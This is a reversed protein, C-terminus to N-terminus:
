CIKIIHSQYQINKYLEYYTLGSKNQVNSLLVLVFYIFTENNTNIQIHAYSM